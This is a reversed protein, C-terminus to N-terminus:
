PFLLSMLGNSHIAPSVVNPAQTLPCPRELTASYHFSDIFYAVDCDSLWLTDPAKGINKAGVTVHISDGYYYVMKDTSVFYKMQATLPSWTLALLTFLCIRKM